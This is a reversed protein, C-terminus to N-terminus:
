KSIKKVSKEVRLYQDIGAAMKRGEAIAWVILSPGRKTDGSAFIGDRSTMFSDDVAVAGRADYKVGLSDLLGNKVPGTFGMALLVLDVGLEFDSGPIPTFKGGEFKVRNAHLKTVQDNQGTFKTTSVSWQSDRICM